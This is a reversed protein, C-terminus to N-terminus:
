AWPPSRGRWCVLNVDTDDTCLRKRETATPVPRTRGSPELVAIAFGRDCLGSLFAGPDDGTEEIAPPWFETLMWLARGSALLERAGDLVAPERGQVDLKLFDVRVARAALSEDLTTVGVRVAPRRERVPGLRHDGLNDRDLHLPAEGPERSLAKQVLTVNAYGNRAVNRALLDHNRPEPEFAYV